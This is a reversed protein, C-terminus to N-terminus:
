DDIQELYKNGSHMHYYLHNVDGGIRTQHDHYEVKFKM